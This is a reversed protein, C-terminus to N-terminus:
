FRFLGLITFMFLRLREREGREKERWDGREREGERRM